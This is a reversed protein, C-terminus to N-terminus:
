LLTICNRGRNKSQYLAKDAKSMMSELNQGPLKKTVGISVTVNYQNNLYTYTQKETNKLFTNLSELIDSETFDAQLVAFEEGGLRAILCGTGFHNKLLKGFNHIVMDGAAHGYQDNVNKFRDLDFMILHLTKGSENAKLICEKGIQIFARRNNLTSLEDTLALKKLEENLQYIQTVDRITKILGRASKLNGLNKTTVDYYREENNIYLKIVSKETKELGKLLDPVQCFLTSLYGNDLRINIQSFLEKASSNYDIVKNQRNILLIADSSSEFSMGRAISSTELLDYQLIALVVLVCTVPLCLAMYDLYPGFPKIQSLLLGAVAFVSSTVTLLINGKQKNERKLSDYIYLGMAILVMLM